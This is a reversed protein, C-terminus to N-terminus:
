SAYGIQNVLWWNGLVPRWKQGVLWCVHVLKATTFTPDLETWIIHIPPRFIQNVSVLYNASNCQHTSNKGGDARKVLSTRRSLTHLQSQGFTYRTVKLAPWWYRVFANMDLGQRVLWDCSVRPNSFIFDTLWYIKIAVYWMFCVHPCM